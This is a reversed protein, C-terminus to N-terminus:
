GSRTKVFNRQKRRLGILCKKDRESCKDGYSQLKARRAEYGRQRLAVDRGFCLQKVVKGTESDLVTVTALTSSGIEVGVIHKKNRDSKRDKDSNRDSDKSPESFKKEVFVAVKGNFLSISKIEWGDDLFEKLRNYGGECKVPIVFSKYTRPSYTIKFSDREM